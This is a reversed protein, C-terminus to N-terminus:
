ITIGGERVGEAFAQLRGHYKYRGRDFVVQSVGMEKARKALEKGVARAVAKKDGSDVKVHCSACSAITSRAVDDIVQGYIHKLSRFVTIRPMVGTKLKGSVRLGRRKARVRDKKSVAM